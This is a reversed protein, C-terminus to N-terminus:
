IFELIKKSLFEIPGHSIAQRRSKDIVAAQEAGSGDGV